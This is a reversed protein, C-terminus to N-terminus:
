NKVTFVEYEELTGSAVSCAIGYRNCGSLNSSWTQQNIYFNSGFFPGYGNYRRGSLHVCRGIRAGATSRGDSIEFIFSNDAGSYCSTIYNKNSDSWSSPNYGGFINPHNMIKAIVVTPGKSSCMRRFRQNDFGDRSARYILTFKYSIEDYAAKKCGICRAIFAMVSPGVLKSDLLGARARAMIHNPRRSPLMIFQLMEERLKKSFLKKYPRVEDYYEDASMTFFRIHKILGALTKKMRNRGYTPWRTPPYKLKPHRTAGWKLVCKWLEVEKMRLKDQELIQAFIDEELTLYEDSDFLNTRNGCIEDLCFLRLAKCSELRFISQLVRVPQEVIFSKRSEILYNQAFRLLDDLNLEDSAVLLKLIQFGDCKEIDVEGTYLYRLIIEFVNAEINAKEFVYCYGKKKLLKKSLAAQFYTSQACLIQSHVKFEKRDQKHGAYLALDFNESSEFLQAFNNSHRPYFNKSM